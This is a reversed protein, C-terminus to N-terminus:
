KWDKCNVTEFEADILKQIRRTEARMEKSKAFAGCLKMWPAERGQPRNADRLKDEIAEALLRKLTIKKAAAVRKARQFTEEPMELTIKLAGSEEEKIM